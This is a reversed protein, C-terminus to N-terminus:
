KVARISLNPLAGSALLQKYLKIMLILLVTSFAVRHSCNLGLQLLAWTRWQMILAHGLNSLLLLFPQHPAPPSLYSIHQLRFCSSSCTSLIPPRGVRAIFWLSPSPPRSLVGHHLFCHLTGVAQLWLRVVCFSQPPSSQINQRQLM